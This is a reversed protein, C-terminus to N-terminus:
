QASFSCQVARARSLAILRLSAKRTRRSQLRQEILKRITENCKTNRKKEQGAAADDRQSYERRFLALLRDRAVLSGSIVMKQKPTIRLPQFCM